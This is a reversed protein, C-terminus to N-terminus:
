LCIRNALLDLGPPLTGAAHLSPLYLTLLALALLVAGASRRLWPRRFFIVARGAAFGAILTAPLTGLGFFAMAAAGQLPDGTATSLGLAMYVLACPLWGWVVGFMVAHNPSKVPLLRKGIPELRKWLPNGLSEIVAIRPLWGALHLGTLLLAAAAATRLIAHGSEPQFTQALVGGVAGVLVGALIYSVIRGLNFSLIHLLLRGRNERVEPPLSFTMAGIIGGCMGLCHLSAALGMVLPTLLIADLEPTWFIPLSDLLSM